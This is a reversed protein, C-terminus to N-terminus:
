RSRRAFVKAFAFPIVSLATLQRNWPSLRASGARSPPVHDGDNRFAWCQM